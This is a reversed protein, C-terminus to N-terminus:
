KIAINSFPRDLLASKELLGQKFVADAVTLLSSNTWLLENRPGFTFYMVEVSRASSKTFVVCLPSADFFFFPQQKAIAAIYGKIESQSASAFWAKLGKGDEAPLHKVFDDFRGAALASKMEELTTKVEAALKALDGRTDMPAGKLFLRSPHWDSKPGGSAPGLSVAHTAHQIEDESCYVPRDTKGPGWPEQFWDDLLQYTVKETRYPLFGFSGDEQYAFVFPAFASEKTSASRLKAYFAVL